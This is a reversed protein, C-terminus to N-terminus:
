TNQQTDPDSDDSETQAIVEEISTQGQQAAKIFGDQRLTRFISSGTQETEIACIRKAEAECERLADKGLRVIIDAFPEVPRCEYLGVRGKYGTGGCTACGGPKPRYLTQGPELHINNAKALLASQPHPEKCSCLRRVLRQSVFLNVAGIIISSEVGIDILRTIGGLATNAHLTSFGTHGTLAARMSLEATEKDRTEGVLIYDPDQRLLSRLGMGFTLQETVETQRINRFEYEIPDELTMMTYNTVDLTNIISYLSTTKGSGTPGVFYTFGFPANAATLIAAKTDDLMGLKDLPVIGKSQDLIRMVISEGFLTPLSSFRLNIKKGNLILKARGDQPIHRMAIDLGGKMKIRAAIAERVSGDMVKYPHIVGDIRFKIQTLTEEPVVHIDSVGMNVAEAVLQDFFRSPDSVDAKSAFIEELKALIEAEQAIHYEFETIGFRGLMQTVEAFGPISPDSVALSVKPGQRKFPVVRMRRAMTVPLLRAADPAVKVPGLVLTPFKHHAAILNAINLPTLIGLELLVAGFSMRRGNQNYYNTALKISSEGIGHERLAAPMWLFDSEFRGGKGGMDQAKPLAALSVKVVPKSDPTTEAEGQSPISPM